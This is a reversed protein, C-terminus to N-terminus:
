EVNPQITEFASYFFAVGTGLSVLTNMNTEGHLLAKWASRFIAGGAWVALVATAFLLSWHLPGEPLRYMWPLLRMPAHDLAGMEGSGLPMSVVMAVVGAPITAAAKWGANKEGDSYDSRGAVGRPLVADYGTDRITSVLAEPAISGRDCEVAARHRMLDVRAAVVGPAARLASEVHQQCAACTMGLVPLSISELNKAITGATTAVESM